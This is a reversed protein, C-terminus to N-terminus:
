GGLPVTILLKSGRGVQSEVHFSGRLVNLREQIGILGLGKNGSRALVEAPDFGVGDDEVSCLISKRKRRLAIKVSRARSHRTVNALSEQVVRYLGIEIAPPLRDNFSSSVQIPLKARKSVGNALSRVAPVLGLDDLVTPRLEHSFQRLHEEAQNLLGVIDQLRDKVRPTAEHSVDAIALHAAVLLQGAENHVAHAIRKLEQELLENLHRLSAVTDNYSHRGLEYASLVETLFQGSRKVARKGEESDWKHSPLEGLLLHHLSVVELIGMDQGFAERGVEYAAVLETENADRLYNRFAGAYRTQFDPKSIPTSQRNM